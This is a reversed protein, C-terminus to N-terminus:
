QIKREETALEKDVYIQIKTLHKEYMKINEEQRLEEPLANLIEQSISNLDKVLRLLVHYKRQLIDVDM